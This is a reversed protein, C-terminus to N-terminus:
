FALPNTPLQHDDHGQPHVADTLPSLNSISGSTESFAFLSLPSSLVSVKLCVLKGMNEELASRSM